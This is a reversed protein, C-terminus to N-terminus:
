GADRSRRVRATMAGVAPNVVLLSLWFLRALDPSALYALPISALFVGAPVLGGIVSEQWEGSTPTHDLLGRRGAVIWVVTYLVSVLAINVAMLVTPLPLDAVGPDGVSATSFPLVVVAAVLCLNVAIPSTDIAVWSAVMRHHRLWYGAIVAFAVLFAIFQPGIADGLATVSTFSSPKDRVDLTTILLTLPVAFTADLFAIARDFEAEDRTYRRRKPTV